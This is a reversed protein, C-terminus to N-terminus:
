KGAAKRCVSEECSKKKAPNDGAQLLCGACYGEYIKAVDKACAGVQCAQMRDSMSKGCAQGSPADKAAANCEKHKALAENRCDSCPNQAFAVGSMTLLMAALLKTKRM